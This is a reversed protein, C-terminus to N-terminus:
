RGTLCKRAIRKWWSRWMLQAWFWGTRLSPRLMPFDASFIRLRLFLTITFLPSHLHLSFPLMLMARYTRDEVKRYVVTFGEANRNILRPFITSSPSAGEGIGRFHLPICVFKRMERYYKARVEEMSPRFQLKQHRHCCSTTCSSFSEHWMIRHRVYNQPAFQPFVALCSCLWTWPSIHEVYLLGM